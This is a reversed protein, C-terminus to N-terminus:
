LCVRAAVLQEYPPISCTPHPAGSDVERITVRSSCMPLRGCMLLIKSPSLMTGTIEMTTITTLLLVAAPGQAQDVRPLRLAAAQCCRGDASSGISATSMRCRYDEIAKLRARRSRVWDPRRRRPRRSGANCSYRRDRDRVAHRRGDVHDRSRDAPRGTRLDRGTPPRALMTATCPTSPSHSTCRCDSTPCPRAAVYAIRSGMRCATSGPPM